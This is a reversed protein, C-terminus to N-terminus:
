ELFIQQVGIIYFARDQPKLVSFFLLGQEKSSIM